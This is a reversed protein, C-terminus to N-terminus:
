FFLDKTQFGGSPKLKQWSKWAAGKGVKRPYEGWFKEFESSYLVHDGNLPVIPPKNQIQIQDTENATVSVNSFRKRFQKVRETSSDSKYQRKHWNHPQLKGRYTEILGLTTLKGILVAAEDDTCHFAFSVCKLSPIEGDNKAALCLMNIWDKFLQPELFQVKPDYLVDAYLRFWHSM